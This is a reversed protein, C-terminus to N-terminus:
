GLSGAPSCPGERQVGTQLWGGAADAAGPPQVTDGEEHKDVEGEVGEDDESDEEVKGRRAGGGGEERGEQRAGVVRGM